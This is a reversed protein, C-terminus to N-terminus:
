NKSIGFFNIMSNEFAVGKLNKSIMYYKIPNYLPITAVDKTVVKDEVKMYMATRAKGAPITRGDELSKTVSPDGYNSSWMRSQDKHFFTYMFNDPDPIDAYWTLFLTQVKGNKRMDVMAAADFKQVDLNIGSAKLQEQLVTAVGVLASKESISAVLKIGNPFGAEKLLAKAKTPNYKTAARKPDFGPMGPPIFCGTARAHGKMYNAVLSNQDVAYSIAERVKVKDLPPMNVNLIMAITGILPVGVLQDQYKPNNKYGDVMVTGNFGVMDLTGREYELLATSQDMNYLEIGDLKVPTGYYGPFREVVLVDKPEFKVLKFPGTGVFTDIGWRPGAARCAKEPYIMLQQCALVALFPSYPSALTIEFRRDDLVKFGALKTAKGDLMEQAGLIMDCLYTNLCKTKPDFMRTFTFEVDKSTLTSGDHFKVGSRLECSYVKGDKSITPMSKLLKPYPVLDRNFALLSEGILWAPQIVDTDTQLQVDLFEMAPVSAAFKLVKKGSAGYAAFAFLTGLALVLNRIRRM